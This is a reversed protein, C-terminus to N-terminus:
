AFLSRFAPLRLAFQVVLRPFTKSNSAFSGPFHSRNDTRPSAANGVFAFIMANTHLPRIRSFTTPGWGLNLEPLFLQIALMLGVLAGVIGWFLTAIGFNRVIANDYKFTELAM